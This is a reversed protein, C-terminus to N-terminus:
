LPAAVFRLLNDALEYTSALVYSVRNNKDAPKMLKASLMANTLPAGSMNRLVAGAKKAIYLGPVADHAASGSLNFLGDIRKVGDILRMMIPNGGLNYIRTESGAQNEILQSLNTIFPHMRLRQNEDKGDVVPSLYSKIKQGYFAISANTISKVDSPGTVNPVFPTSPHSGLQVKRIHDMDRRACYIVEDPLAVFTAIIRKDADKETPHFFTMASCWNSLHREFLDTGDVMDLLVVLRDQDTFDLNDTLPQDGFEEGVVLPNYSKLHQHLLSNTLSEALVDYTSAGKPKSEKRHIEVRNTGVEPSAYKLKLHVDRITEIAVKEIKEIDYIMLQGELLFSAV